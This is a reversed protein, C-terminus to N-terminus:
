RYKRVLNGPALDIIEKIEAAILYEPKPLIAEPHLKQGQDQSVHKLVRKTIRGALRAEWMSIVKSGLNQYPIIKAQGKLCYGEFKDEDVATITINSNKQLNKFTRARYVDVLYIRGDSDIEAIGKCSNHILGSRDITSVIVFGQQLFFQKIEEKLALM